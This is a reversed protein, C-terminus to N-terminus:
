EGRKTPDLADRLSNAFMNFAIMLVSILVAPFFTQEPYQLLVKQGAALMVGISTDPPAIGLGIYALFSESFIAGPIAIMARLILPGVCNPLIHRFILTVDKVGLTRAALVYERNKFRFFQARILRSTGIWGTVCMAAIISTMGSGLVLMFLITICVYPLGDLVQAFHTLIFDVKGGYYGSVAGYVVGIFVNTMVTIFAILLSVRTGRFLRTMTDRGLDDTGMWHYVNDELGAMKYTDVLVDCMEVGKVTRRNRIELVCGEPYRETDTLGEVKRNELVRTGDAIGLKELGPIKPPLNRAELVYETYTYGSIMPVVYAGIIILMIMAFSILAVKSKSLRIMADKFFGVPKTQFKEDMIQDGEQVMVFSDASIAELEEPLKNKLDIVTM